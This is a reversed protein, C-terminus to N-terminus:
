FSIDYQFDNMPSSHCIWINYALFWTLLAMTVIMLDQRVCVCKIAKDVSIIIWDLMNKYTDLILLRKMKKRKLLWRHLQLMTKM